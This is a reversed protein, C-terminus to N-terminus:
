APTNVLGNDDALTVVGIDLGVDGKDADVSVFEALLDSPRLVAAEAPIPTPTPTRAAPIM